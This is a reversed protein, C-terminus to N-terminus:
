MYGAASSKLEGTREDIPLVKEYLEVACHSIFLVSEQIVKCPLKRIGKRRFPSKYFVNRLSQCLRPWVGNLSM